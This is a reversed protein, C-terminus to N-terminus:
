ALRRVRMVIQHDYGNKPAGGRGGPSPALPHPAIVLNGGTSKLNKGNSKLGLSEYGRGSGFVNGQRQTLAYTTPQSMTFATAVRLRMGRM